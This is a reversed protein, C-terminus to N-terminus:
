SNKTINQENNLGKLKNQMYLLSKTINNKVCYNIKAQLAEQLTPYTGINTCGNSRFVRALYYTNGTNQNTKCYIGAIYVTKRTDPKLVAGYYSRLIKKLIYKDLNNESRITRNWKNEVTRICPRCPREGIYEEAIELFAISKRTRPKFKIAPPRDTNCLKCM